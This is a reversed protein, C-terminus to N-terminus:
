AKEPKPLQSRTKLSEWITAKDAQTLLHVMNHPENPVGTSRDEYFAFRLYMLKGPSASKVIATLGNRIRDYLAPRAQQLVTRVRDQEQLPLTHIKIALRRLDGTPITLAENTLSTSIAFTKQDNLPRALPETGLLATKTEFLTTLMELMKRTLRGTRNRRARDIISALTEQNPANEIAKTAAAFEKSQSFTRVMNRRMTGIILACTQEASRRDEAARRSLPRTELNAKKVRYLTSLATFSKISLTGKDRAQFASRIAAKLVRTDTASEITQAFSRFLESRRQASLIFDRGMNQLIQQLVAEVYRREEGNIYVSTTEEFECIGQRDVTLVDKAIAPLMRFVTETFTRLWNRQRMLTILLRSSYIAAEPNNRSDIILQAVKPLTATLDSMEQYLDALQGKAFKRVANIVQVHRRLPDCEYAFDTATAASYDQIASILPRVDAPIYTITRITRLTRADRDSRSGYIRDLQSQIFRDITFENEDDSRLKTGNTFLERLESVVAAVQFPLYDEDVDEELTGDVIFKEGDSMHMSIAGNETYQETVREFDEVMTDVTEDSLGDNRLHSEYIDTDTRRTKNTVTSYSKAKIARLESKFPDATGTQCLVELYRLDRLMRRERETAGDTYSHEVGFYEYVEPEDLLHKENTATVSTLEMAWRGLQTLVATIVSRKHEELSLGDTPNYRDIGTKIEDYAWSAWVQISRADRDNKDEVYGACEKIVRVFEVADPNSELKKEAYSITLIRHQLEYDDAPGLDSEIHGIVSGGIVQSDEIDIRTANGSFIPHQRAAHRDEPDLNNVNVRTNAFQDLHTNFDFNPNGTDFARYLLLLSNPAYRQLFQTQLM